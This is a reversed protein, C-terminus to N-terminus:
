WREEPRRLVENIVVMQRLANADTLLTALDFLPLSAALEGPPPTTVDDLTGVRHSFVGKLRAENAEEAAAVRNKRAARQAFEETNVHERVYDEVDQGRDGLRQLTRVPPVAPPRAPARATRPPSAPKRPRRAPAPAAPPAVPRSGGSRRAQAQRLFEAVEDAPNPAPQQNPVGSQARPQRPVNPPLESPRPRAPPKEAAQSALARAIWAVVFIIALGFKVMDAFDFAALM